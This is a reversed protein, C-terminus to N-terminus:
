ALRPIHARTIVIIYLQVRLERHLSVPRVQAHHQFACPAPRSTARPRTVVLVNRSQGKQQPPQPGSPDGDARSPCTSVAGSSWAGPSPDLFAEGGPRATSYRECCRRRATSRRAGCWRRECNSRVCGEVALRVAFSWMYSRLVQRWSCLALEAGRTVASIATPNVAAQWSCQSAASGTGELRQDTTPDRLSRNYAGSGATRQVGYARLWQAMGVWLSVDQYMAHCLLLPRGSRTEAAWPGNESTTAPTPNSGVYASGVTKCVAVGRGM